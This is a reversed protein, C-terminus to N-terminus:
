EDKESVRRTKHCDSETGSSTNGIKEPIFFFEIEAMEPEEV